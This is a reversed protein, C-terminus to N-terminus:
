NDRNPRTNSGIASLNDKCHYMLANVMTGSYNGVAPHVVMGSEKNVVIVDKDEYYINGNQVNPHPKCYVVGICGECDPGYGTLTGTFEIKYDKGYKKIDTTNSVIKLKEYDTVIRSSQISKVNNVNATVIHSKNNGSVVIFLLIFVYILKFGYSKLSLKEQKKM